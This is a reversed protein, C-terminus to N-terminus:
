KLEVQSLACKFFHSYIQADRDDLHIGDTTIYKHTDSPLYMYIERPFAECVMNRTEAYEKLNSLRENIPMEFFVFRVGEKELASMITKLTHLRTSRIEEKSTYDENNLRREILRNLLEINARKLESQGTRKGDKLENLYYSILCIPQYQERLSPILERLKYLFADTQNAFLQPHGEAFLLNYEVLVYRPKQKRAMIINLGDEVSCGQFALSQVSPISDKIIRASLSTGVIVTDVHNSYLYSQAKVVNDQWQHTAKGITPCNLVLAIHICFLVAFTVIAKKIM